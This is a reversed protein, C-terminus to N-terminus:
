CTQVHLRGLKSVINLQSVGNTYKLAKWCLGYHLCFTCTLQYKGDCGANCDQQGDDGHERRWDEGGYKAVARKLYFVYFCVFYFCSSRKCRNPVLPLVCLVVLRYHHLYMVAHVAVMKSTSGASICLQM